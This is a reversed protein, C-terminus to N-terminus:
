LKNIDILYTTYSTKINDHNSQTFYTLIEFNGDRHKLTLKKSFLYVDLFTLFRKRILYEIIKSNETKLNNYYLDAHNQLIDRNTTILNFKKEILYIFIHTHNKECAKYFDRSELYRFKIITKLDGIELAEVFTLPKM